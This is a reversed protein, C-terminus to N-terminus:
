YGRHRCGAKQSRIPQILRRPVNSSKQKRNRANGAMKRVSTNVLTNVELDSVEGKKEQQIELLPSLDVFLKNKQCAHSSYIQDIESTIKRSFIVKPSACEFVDGGSKLCPRPIYVPNAVFKHDDGQRKRGSTQAVM